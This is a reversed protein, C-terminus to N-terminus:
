ATWSSPVTSGTATPADSVVRNRGEHKARYLNADAARLLKEPNGAEAGLSAVGISVTVRTGGADKPLIFEQSEVRKRLREAVGAAGLLPTHPAIVLFEEGGYRALIDHERLEAAAIKAVTVLVQDGAQHGHADNIQKFHDIDILFVALPLGYRQAGSVEEGLRRDLYRRNFVGTLPDTVTERELVSIRMVDKTTQLSLSASIWVFCAGLFFVGPVILDPLIAHRNWFAVAYGLYGVLFVVIFATMVYWRDRARGSPLQVMLQRIPFLAGALILAGSLVLCQALLSIM